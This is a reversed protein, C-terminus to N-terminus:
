TTVVYTSVFFAANSLYHLIGSVRITGTWWRLFGLVLGFLILSPITSIQQLHWAAWLLASLVPGYRGLRPQMWGRFFAEEVFVSIPYRVLLEAAALGLGVQRVSGYTAGNTASSGVIASVGFAAAGVIIALAVPFGPRSTTATARLGVTEFDIARDDLRRVAWILLGFTSAAWVLEAGLYGASPFHWGAHIAARNTFWGVGGAVLTLGVALRIPLQPPGEAERSRSM